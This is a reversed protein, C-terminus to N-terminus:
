PKEPSQRWACSPTEIEGGERRTLQLNQLAAQWVRGRGYLDNLRFGIRTFNWERGNEKRKGSTSATTIRCTGGAVAVSDARVQQRGIDVAANVVEGDGIEAALQPLTETSMRYRVSDLRLSQIEVSWDPPDSAVTDAPAEQKGAIWLVDGRKLDFATIRVQKKGWDIEPIGIKLTEIKAQLRADALTDKRHFYAERLTLDRVSIKKRWVGSLGIDADLQGIYLLTDTDSRGAFVKELRLRLPFKLSLGGIDAKVGTAREAYEVIKGKAYRQVAPLYVSFLAGLLLLAAALLIRLLYKVPKRM